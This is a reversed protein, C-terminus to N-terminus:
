SQVMIRRIEEEWTALIVPTFWWQRARDNKQNRGETVESVKPRGGIMQNGPIFIHVLITEPNKELNCTKM